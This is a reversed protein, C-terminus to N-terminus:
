YAMIRSSYDKWYPASKYAEVSSAPVYIPCNTNGFMGEEGEPVIIPKVVFSEVNVTGGFCGYGMKAVTEPITVHRLFKCGGFAEGGIEIVGVPIDISTIATGKLAFGEIVTVTEPILINSLSTCGAFIGYPMSKMQKPLVVEVLSTCEEFIYDGFSTVSNPIFVSVLNKCYAFAYRDIVEVGEHLQISKISNCGSFAGYDIQLLNDNFSVTSLNECSNFAWMKIWLLNKPLVINSLNKCNFFSSQGIVEINDHMKVSRLNNCKYFAYGNELSSSTPIEISTASKGSIFLEGGTDSEVFPHSGESLDLKLWQELDDIDLHNLNPCGWFSYHGIYEVNKPIHISSLNTCNRFAEYGIQKVADPIDIVKLRSCGMFAQMGIWRISNPLTIADIVLWDTFMNDPVYSIGTFYKFEEFSRYSKATFADKFSAIDTVAAAEYYSIEGDNDSDFRAVLSAKIGNDKFTIIPQGGQALSFVLQKKGETDAIFVSVNRPKTEINESASVSYVFTSLGDSVGKEERESFSVWDKGEEIKIIYDINTKVAFEVKGGEYSVSDQNPSISLYDLKAQKIKVTASLSGNTQKLTISSERDLYTNNTAISFSIIDTQLSKTNVISVWSKADSPIVVDYAVNQKVEVDVVTSQNSVSIEEPSVFLGYQEDQLITITGSLNGNTQKVIVKGERLDYTDNAAIDLVIQNTKLGKTEVYKIWDVESKVDFEINSKVEVTLTHSENSIRYGPSSIFLGDLQSQKITITSSLSGGNQKITVKGERGDYSTNEAIDLIVTSTTLGKTTNYRVWDKCGSDVEVSFQVNAKVEINLQQAEKTLDYSTQSLMLGNNTAQSISITKMLEACTVTVTCSRADYTTNADCSISIRSGSAEEGGSPSVKCWSQSASITWPKNAIITITQSGGADTYSLDTLDVTLVTEKECAAFFFLTVLMLVTTIRKM